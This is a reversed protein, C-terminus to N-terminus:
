QGRLLADIDITQIGSEGLMEDHSSFNRDEFLENMKM